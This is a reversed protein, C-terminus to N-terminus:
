FWDSKQIGVAIKILQNIEQIFRNLLFEHPSFDQFHQNHIIIGASQKVPQGFEEFIFIGCVVEVQDSKLM